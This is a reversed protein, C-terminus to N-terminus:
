NFHIEPNEFFAVWAFWMATFSDTMSLETGARPGAVAMGFIDWSNGESDTMVVPLQDQVPSFDLITGDPLERSYIAAFDLLSNGVVVIPENDFQDTITQTTEGFGEIQYVKSAGTAHIGIVRTKLHLRNDQRSVPFLLTDNWPYTGYPYTLYDREHGTITTLVQSDPFMLKWTEWTTEFVQIRNPSEGVRVGEVARELM